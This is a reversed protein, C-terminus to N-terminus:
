IQNNRFYLRYVSILMLECWGITVIPCWQTWHRGRGMGINNKLCSPHSVKKFAQYARSLQYVSLARGELALVRSVLWHQTIHWQFLVQIFITTENTGTFVFVPVWLALVKLHWSPSSFPCEASLKSFKLAYNHFPSAWFSWWQVCLISSHIHEVLPESGFSKISPINSLCVINYYLPECLQTLTQYKKM